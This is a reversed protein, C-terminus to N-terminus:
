KADNIHIKLFATKLVALNNQPMLINTQVWHIWDKFLLSEETGPIRPGMDIQAQMHDEIVSVHVPSNDRLKQDGTIVSTTSAVLLFLMLLTMMVLRKM